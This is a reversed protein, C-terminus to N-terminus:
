TLIEESVRQLYFHAPFLCHSEKLHYWKYLKIGIAWGDNEAKRARVVGLELSWTLIINLFINGPWTNAGWVSEGM